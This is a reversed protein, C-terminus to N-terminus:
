QISWHFPSSFFLREQSERYLFRKWLLQKKKRKKQWEVKGVYVDKLRLFSHYEFISDQKFVFLFGWFVLWKGFFFFQWFNKLLDTSFQQPCQRTEHCVLFFSTKKFARQSIFLKPFVPKSYHPGKRFSLKPM